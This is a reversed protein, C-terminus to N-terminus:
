GRATIFQVTRRNPRLRITKSGAAGLRDGRDGTRDYSDAQVQLVHNGALLTLGNEV